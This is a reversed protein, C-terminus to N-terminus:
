AKPGASKMAHTTGAHSALVSGLIVLAPHYDGTGIWTGAAVLVAAIASKHTLVWTGVTVLVNMMNSRQHPDIAVKGQGSCRPCMVGDDQRVLRWGQGSCAPCNVISWDPM